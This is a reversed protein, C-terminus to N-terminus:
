GRSPLIRLLHLTMPGPESADPDFEQTGYALTDGFAAIARFPVRGPALAPVAGGDLRAVAVGEDGNAWAAFGSVVVGPGSQPDRRLESLSCDPLRCTCVTEADASGGPEDLFVLLRDDGVAASTAEPVTVVSRRSAFAAGSRLSLELGRKSWSTEFMGAATITAPTAADAWSRTRGTELNRVTVRGNDNWAALGNGAAACPAEEDIDEPLGSALRRQKGTTLDRQWLSWHGPPGPDSDSVVSEFDTWLLDDGDLELCGPRGARYSTGITAAVRAPQSRRRVEIRGRTDQGLAGGALLLWTDNLEIEDLSPLATTV